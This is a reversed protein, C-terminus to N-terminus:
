LLAITHKFFREQKEGYPLRVRGWQYEKDLEERVACKLFTRWLAFEGVPPFVPSSAPLCAMRLPVSPRLLEPRPPERPPPCGPRLRSWASPLPRLPRLGTCPSSEPARSGPSPALGPGRPLPTCACVRAYVYMCVCHVFVCTCVCYVCARTCVYHVHTYACHVCTRVHVRLTCVCM